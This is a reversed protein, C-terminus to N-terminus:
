PKPAGADESPTEEPEAPQADAEDRLKANKEVMARLREPM